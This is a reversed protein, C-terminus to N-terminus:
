FILGEGVRRLAALVRSQAIRVANPTIALSEAVATVEEGQLVVRRFAQLSQPQFEDAVMEMLREILYADHEENWLGSLGSDDEALQDVVVSWDPRNDEGRRWVKRQLTRLRFHMVKRLWNRFAGERGNHDFREIESFVKALVEQRVDEAVDHPIGRRRLWSEILPGYINNFRSWASSDSGRQLQGLLTLSTVDPEM